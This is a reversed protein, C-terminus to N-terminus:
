GKPTGIAGTPAGDLHLKHKLYETLLPEAAKWGTRILTPANKQVQKWLKKEARRGLGERKLHELAAHAAKRRDQDTEADALYQLQSLRDERTAWPHAGGCCDCFSPPEYGVYGILRSPPENGKIRMGCGGCRALLPTGDKDCFGYKQGEPGPVHDLTSTITHGKACVVAARMAGPEGPRWFSPDRNAQAGAAAVAPNM